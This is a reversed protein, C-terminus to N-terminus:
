PVMEERWREVIELTLTERPRLADLWVADRPLQHRFWTIQRRAYGRTRSQIRRVAEDMDIEGDLAAAVEPYGTASLGPDRVRWGAARLREVEAPLGAEIMAVVRADIRRYLEERPLELVFVLPRLPPQAPPAHTHWWALTHGTLLAIEVARERRQRGGRTALADASQPDLTRLWRELAEHDLKALWRALRRRPAEPLPPEDFLPHTLARLFFGTGGVLLPVRGRGAIEAVWGRAANAFRGASFREDPDVLDLGHHPVRAREAADAKATGIDLGRYVQRSDISIIEGDVREAVDIALSTKGSATPGTIVLADRSM